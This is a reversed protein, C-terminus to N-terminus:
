LPLKRTKSKILNLSSATQAIKAKLTKDILKAAIELEIGTKECYYTIAELHNLEKEKVIKDITAAFDKIETKSPM